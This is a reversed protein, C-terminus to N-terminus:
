FLYVLARTHKTGQRKILYINAYKLCAFCCALLFFRYFCGASEGGGGKLTRGAPAQFVREPLRPTFYCTKLDCINEPTTLSLLTVHAYISNKM